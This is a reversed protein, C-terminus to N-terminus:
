NVDNGSDEKHSGDSPSEEKLKELTEPVPEFGRAAMDKLYENAKSNSDPKAPAVPTHLKEAHRIMVLANRKALWAGLLFLEHGRALNNRVAYDIAAMQMWSVTQMPLGVIQEIKHNKALGYTGLSVRWTLYEVIAEEVETANPIPLQDKNPEMTAM